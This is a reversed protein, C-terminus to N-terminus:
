PLYFVLCFRFSVRLTPFKNRVKKIQRSITTVSCPNGNELLPPLRLRTPESVTSRTKSVPPPGGGARGAAPRLLWM